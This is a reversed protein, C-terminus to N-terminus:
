NGSVKLASIGGSWFLKMKSKLISSSETKQFRPINLPHDYDIGGLGTSKILLHNFVYNKKM